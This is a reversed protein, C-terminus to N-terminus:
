KIMDQIGNLTDSKYFTDPFKLYEDGQQDVTPTGDDVPTNLFNVLKEYESYPLGKSKAYLLIGISGNRIESNHIAADDASDATLMQMLETFTHSEMVRLRIDDDLDDTLPETLDLHFHSAQGEARDRFLNTYPAATRILVSLNQADPHVFEIEMNPGEITQQVGNEDYVDGFPYLALIKDRQFINGSQEPRRENYYELVEPITDLLKEIGDKNLALDPSVAPVYGFGKYYRTGEKTTIGQGQLQYRMDQPLNTPLFIDLDFEDSRYHHPDDVPYLQRLEELADPNNLYPFSIASVNYHSNEFIGQVEDATYDGNNDLDFFSIPTYTPAPTVDNSSARITPPIPSPSSNLSGCGAIIPLLALLPLTQKLNIEQEM